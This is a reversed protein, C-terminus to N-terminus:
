LTVSHLTILSVQSAIRASDNDQHMMVAMGNSGVTVPVKLSASTLGNSVTVSVASTNSSSSLVRESECNNLKDDAGLLHFEEDLVLVTKHMIGVGGNVKGSSNTKGNIIQPNSLDFWNERLREYDMSNSCKLLANEFRNSVINDVYEFNDNNCENNSLCVNKNKHFLNIMVKRGIEVFYDCCTM